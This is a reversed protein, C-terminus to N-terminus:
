DRKKICRTYLNITEDPISSNNISYEMKERDFPVLVEEVDFGNENETLIMYYASNFLENQYAIGAGRLTAFMTKGDNELAKWHLHGQFIADFDSVSKGSFLPVNYASVIGMMESSNSDNEQLSKELWLRQDPSNTWYFQEYGRGLDKFNQYYLQSTHEKFDFRIDNIFHCLAINKDGFSLEFFHPFTSMFEKHHESLQALTWMHSKLRSENLISNYVPTGLTVYNEMNGAISNVQNEELLDLVQSPNPGVGINDGLSYIESIGKRRIDELIAELPELLGHVDTFIAIKRNNIM